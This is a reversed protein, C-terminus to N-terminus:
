IFKDLILSTKPFSKEWQIKIRLSHKKKKKQKLENLTESSHMKWEAMPVM